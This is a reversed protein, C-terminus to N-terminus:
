AGRKREIKAQVERRNIVVESRASFGIRVVEGRIETVTVVVEDPTGPNIVIEEDVRRSLVLM